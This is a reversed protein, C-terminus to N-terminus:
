QKTDFGNRAANLRKVYRIGAVFEYGGPKGNDFVPPECFSLVPAKIDPELTLVVAGGHALSDVSPKGVRLPLIGVKQKYVAAIYLSRRCLANNCILSKVYRHETHYFVLMVFGTRKGVALMLDPQGLTLIQKYENVAYLFLNM